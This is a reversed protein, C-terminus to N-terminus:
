IHRVEEEMEEQREDQEDDATSENDSLEADQSKKPKLAGSFHHKMVVDRWTGDKMMQAAGPYARKLDRVISDKGLSIIVSAIYAPESFRHWQDAGGNEGGPVFV